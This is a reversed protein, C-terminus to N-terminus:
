GHAVGSCRRHNGARHLSLWCLPLAYRQACLPHNQNRKLLAYATM